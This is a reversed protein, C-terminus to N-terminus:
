RPDRTTELTALFERGGTRLHRFLGYAWCGLLLVTVAGLSGGASSPAVLWLLALILGVWGALAPWEPPDARSM